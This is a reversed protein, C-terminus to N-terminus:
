TALLPANSYDAFVFAGPDSTNDGEERQHQKPGIDHAAASLAKDTASNAAIRSTNPGETFRGLHGGLSGELARLAFRRVRDNADFCRRHVINRQDAQTAALWKLVTIALESKLIEASVAWLAM